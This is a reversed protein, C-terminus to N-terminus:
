DTIFSRFIEDLLALEADFPDSSDIALEISEWTSLIEVREAVPIAALDLVPARNLDNPEFKELGGGYDRREQDLLERAIPTVLYAMLLSPDEAFLGDPYIGHFCTLNKVGATNRVFRVGGRSFVTVLIPAVPRSELSFWPERHRTLYRQDIGEAEGQALYREVAECDLARSADFLFVPADSRVLEDFQPKTFALQRAQSAKTICPVLCEAPLERREAESRSLAFFSNAGTAIGRKVRVSDGLRAVSGHAHSAEGNYYNRWKRQPEIMPSELAPLLWGTGSGSSNLIQHGLEELQGLHRCTGFQIPATAGDNAALVIASTTTAEQFVPEEPEFVLVFRLMGSELLLRKVEVGYGANMFEAPMIYALRGGPRLQALSKLLFLVHINTLGSLSARLQRNFQEIAKLRNPFDHFKLYPPNCIVGDFVEEWCAGLYDDNRLRATVELEDLVKTGATLVAPDIDFGTFEWSRESDCRFLRRLFIGLGVAPDLVRRISSDAAIWAVMFDAVVQPTFVQGIRKRDGYPVNRAYLAEPSDSLLENKTAAPPALDM